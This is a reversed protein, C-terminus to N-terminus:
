IVATFIRLGLLATPNLAVRIEGTAFGLHDQIFDIGIMGALQFSINLNGPFFCIDNNGVRVANMALTAADDICFARGEGGPFRFNMM